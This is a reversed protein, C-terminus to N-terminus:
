LCFHRFCRRPRPKSKGPSRAHRPKHFDSDGGVVSSEGQLFFENGTETRGPMLNQIEARVREFRRIVIRIKNKWHGTRHRGSLHLPADGDAATPHPSRNTRVLNTANPSAQNVVVKGRPLAHLIIVHVDKAHPAARNARLHRPIQHPSEGLRNEAALLSVQPPQRLHCGSADLDVIRSHARQQSRM